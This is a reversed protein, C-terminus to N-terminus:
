FLIQGKKVQQGERVDVSQVLGSVDTSVMLKNDHVYSDDSSVYREGVLYFPAAVALFIAVGWVMLIRRMRAKDAWLAALWGQRAGQYASVSNDLASMNNGPRRSNRM